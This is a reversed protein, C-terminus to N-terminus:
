MAIAVLLLCIAVIDRRLIRDSHGQFRLYELLSGTPCGYRCYAMPVFVSAALGLLAVVITAAGAIWFVFADFPEISALNLPLHRVAVIIVMLLLAPPVLELTRQAWRPLRVRWRSRSRILQQAAGFPCTHHCYMQRKSFIPVLLAAATLLVLGPALSWPVGSQAWGVLQAQSLIDGNLFGLYAILAIRYALRFRPRGRLHTFTMALSLMLVVCTGADRASFVIPPLPEDPVLAPGAVAVLTEAVAASTMTAGSVGEVGASQLDMVALESLTMGNFLSGFYKDQQVYRVYPQNDFSSRLIIGVVQDKEGFV